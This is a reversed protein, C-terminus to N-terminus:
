AIYRCPTLICASQLPRRSRMGRGCMVEIWGKHDAVSDISFGILKVGRKAFEAAHKQVAGLETTCVPTYDAPHSFM